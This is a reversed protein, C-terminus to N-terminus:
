PAGHGSPLEVFFSLVVLLALVALSGAVIRGPHRQRQLSDWAIKTWFALLGVTAGVTVVIVPALVAAKTLAMDLLAATAFVLATCVVASIALARVTV